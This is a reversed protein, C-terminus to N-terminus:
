EFWTDNMRLPEFIRTRFFRDLPMGSVVEVLRGLVDIALSYNWREGPEFRLPLTGLKDIAPGLVLGPKGLGYIGAKEYIAKFEDSGIGAYDLGATHTLLQRITIKRRTPKTEYSSDAANFKTLVTHEKFTPLYNGIPDDLGFRGEEWLMMVAVSTIAKTQSAIRFIDDHRLPAKTGLDRVGYAKDLAVKGGKILLITIGPVTGDAVTKAALADLRALRDAHFAAAGALAPAQAALHAPTLAPVGGVLALSLAAFALRSPRM